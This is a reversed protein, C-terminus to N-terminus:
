NKRVKKLTRKAELYASLTYEAPAYSAKAAASDVIAALYNDDVYDRGSLATAERFRDILYERDPQQTSRYYHMSARLLPAHVHPNGVEAMADEFSAVVSRDASVTFDMVPVKRKHEVPPRYPDLTVTDSAKRVLGVRERELPDACGHFLPAATYHPQVPQFLSLDCMWNQSDARRKIDSDAYSQDLMFWIHASLEDWGRLGASSSWQYVYSTRQFCDPLLSVLWDIREAATDLGRLAMVKDFDICVWNRDVSKFAPDPKGTAPLYRRRVDRRNAQDILGGRIVCSRPQDNLWRLVDYLDDSTRMDDVTDVDFTAAGEYGKIIWGKDDRTVTKCLDRHRSTLITIM